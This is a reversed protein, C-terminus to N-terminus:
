KGAGNLEGTKPSVEYFITSEENGRIIQVPWRMPPAPSNASNGNGRNAALSAMFRDWGAAGESPNPPTVMNPAIQQGSLEAFTVGTSESPGTDQTGRLVLRPKGSHSALEIAEADKTTVILTVTKSPEQKEGKNRSMKVGVAQVKANEVITKAIQTDDQKLTAIVDVRCGPVLLGALGSSETVEVSVARMGKPVLATLGGDIGQGALLAEFMMQGKVVASNVARDELKKPDTFANTPVASSPMEIMTLDDATIQQGPELDSKAVVVKTMPTKSLSAAMSQGFILQRGVWVAALGLSLAVVLSIFTKFNM